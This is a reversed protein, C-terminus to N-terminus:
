VKMEGLKEKALEDVGVRRIPFSPFQM